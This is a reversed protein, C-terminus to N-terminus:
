LPERHSPPLHHVALKAPASHDVEGLLLTVESEEVNSSDTLLLRCGFQLNKKETNFLDQDTIFRQTIFALEVASKVLWEALYDRASKLLERAESEYQNDAIASQAAEISESELAKQQIKVQKAILLFIKGVKRYHSEEDLFIGMLRDNLKERLSKKEIQSWSERNEILQNILGPSYRFENILIIEAAEMVAWSIHQRDIDDLTKREDLLILALSRKSNNDSTVYRLMDVSGLKHAVKNFWAIWAQYSSIRAFEATPALSFPINVNLRHENKWQSSHNSNVFRCARNIFYVTPLRKLSRSGNYGPITKIIIKKAKLKKLIRLLQDRSVGTSNCIDSNFFGQTVGTTDSKYVLFALVMREPVTLKVPKKNTSHAEGLKILEHLPKPPKILQNPKPNGKVRFNKVLVSPQGPSYYVTIIKQKTLSNIAQKVLHYSIGFEEHYKKTPIGDPFGDAKRYQLVYLVLRAYSNLSRVDNVSVIAEESLHGFILDLISEKNQNM